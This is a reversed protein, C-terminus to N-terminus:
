FTINFNATGGGADPPSCAGAGCEFEDATGTLTGHVIYASAVGSSGTAPTASTIDLSVTGVPNGGAAPCGSLGQAGAAFATGYSTGATLYSLEFTACMSSATFTGSASSTQIGVTLTGKTAGAPSNVVLTPAGTKPASDATLEFEYFTGIATSYTDALIACTIDIDISGGSQDTGTITGSAYNTLASGGTGSSCGSSGSGGSSSGSGGSSGSGSGSGGSSGGSGSGSGSGGGSSGNGGGGGNPTTSSCACLAAGIVLFALHTKMLRM